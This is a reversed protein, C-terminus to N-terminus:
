TCARGGRAVRRVAPDEETSTSAVMVVALDDRRALEGLVDLNRSAKLHGVHLVIAGSTPSASSRGCSRSGEARPSFRAVDLVPYVVRSVGALRGTADRLRESAFLAM